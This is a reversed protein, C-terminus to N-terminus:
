CLLNASEYDFNPNLDYQPHRRIVPVPQMLYQPPLTSNQPPYYPHQSYIVSQPLPRYLATPDVLRSTNQINQPYAPHSFSVKSFTPPHQSSQLNPKYVTNINGQPLLLTQSNNNFQVQQPFM